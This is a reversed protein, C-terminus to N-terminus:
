IGLDLQDPDPKDLPGNIDATIVANVMEYKHYLEQLVYGNFLEEEIITRYQEIDEFSLSTEEGPLLVSKGESLKTFMGELDPLLQMARKLTHEFDKRYNPNDMAEWNIQITNAAIAAEQKLENMNM